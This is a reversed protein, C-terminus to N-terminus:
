EITAARILEILDGLRQGPNVSVRLLLPEGTGGPVESGIVLDSQETYRHLLIALSTVTLVFLLLDSGKTVQRVKAAEGLSVEILMRADTKPSEIESLECSPLRLPPFPESFKRSWYEELITQKQQDM